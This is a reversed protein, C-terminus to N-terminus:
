RKFIFSILLLLVHSGYKEKNMEFTEESQTIKGTHSSIATHLHPIEPEGKGQLLLSCTRFHQYILTLSCHMDYWFVNKNM